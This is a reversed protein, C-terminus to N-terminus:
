PRLGPDLGLGSLEGATLPLSPDSRHAQAAIVRAALREDGTVPLTVPTSLGDDDPGIYFDASSARARYGEFWGPGAIAAYRLEQEGPDHRTPGAYITACGGGTQEVYADAIGHEDRLLRAVEDLDLARGVPEADAAAPRRARCGPCGSLTQWHRVGIRVLMSLGLASAWHLGFVPWFGNPDTQACGWTLVDTVRCGDPRILWWLVPLALWYTIEPAVSLTGAVARRRWRRVARRRAGAPARVQWGDLPGLDYLRRDDSQVVRPLDGGAPHILLTQPDYGSWALGGHVDCAPHDAVMTTLTELGVLVTRITGDRPDTHVLARYPGEGHPGIIDAWREGTRPAITSPQHTM